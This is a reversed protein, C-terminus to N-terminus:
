CAALRGRPLLLSGERVPAPATGRGVVCRGPSGGRGRAGCLDRGRQRGQGPLEASCRALPPSSVLGRPQLGSGAPLGPLQCTRAPSAQGKAPELLTAGSALAM